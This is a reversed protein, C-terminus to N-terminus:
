FSVVRSSFLGVEEVYFIFRRGWDDIKTVM